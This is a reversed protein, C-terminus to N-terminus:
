GNEGFPELRGHERGVASTMSARDLRDLYSTVLRTWIGQRRTRKRLADAALCFAARVVHEPPVDCYRHSAWTDAVADAAVDEATCGEVVRNERFSPYRRELLATVDEVVRDFRPGLRDATALAFSSAHSM